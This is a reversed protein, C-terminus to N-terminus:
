VADSFKPRYRAIGSVTQMTRADLILIMFAEDPVDQPQEERLTIPTNLVAGEKGANGPSIYDLCDSWRAM